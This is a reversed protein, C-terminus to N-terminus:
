AWRFSGMLRLPMFLQRERLKEEPGQISSYPKPPVEREKSAVEEWSPRQLVRDLNRSAM